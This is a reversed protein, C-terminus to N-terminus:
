EERLATVPDIRLARRAPLYSSVLATLGLLGAVAVYTTIDTAQVGFLMSTMLRTLGLAGVVGVAMGILVPLMGQRVIQGIVSASPAGLAVCIGIESTRRAVSYSQVGYIGALALALALGAVALLLMANFRRTAVSDSVIEDLTEISSVPVNPDMDALMPRLAGVIASPDGATHVGVDMRTWGAGYYPLYVALTPDSDLGRERMDGVVGIIEAPRAGQGEWLNAQRGIPNEGPWLLEALRESIIARWPEAILDQENFTRGSLLPLGITSFYDGTVLRWTAWPVDGDTGASETAVIGMGSSGSTLPRSSVAAVDRVQPLSRLRAFLDTLFNDMMSGEEYAPSLTVGFFLRNDTEFGREVSVIEDFSRILLGSGALLMLSLAVELGVLTNRMRKQRRNGAVGKDGARLSGVIDAHPAQFAPAMGSLIAAGLGVAITFGLVWLNLSVDAIGPIDGPDFAKFLRITATAVGLALVIGIGGLVLSEVLLQRTLRGRGAGLAARVATERHRSTANALLLNALNVCTILLLFGVAGFLVWLARRVETGAVWTDAAAMRIGTRGYSAMDPYQDHLGQAIAKLNSTAVTMSVGPELRGIATLIFNTRDADTNRVLPTFAQAADLWPRGRPLVGIVEYSQDDLSISAGVITSDASFRTTWLDHSLMVLRNERGPEDEGPQLTRGLIPEAGLLGFFGASVQGVTLREPFGLGTLNMDTWTIAGLDEFTQNQERYDRFNPRSLSSRDWGRDPHTEWVQVLRESEPFPLPRLLVTHVVSFLATNAGIGLALTVVAIATFAPSKRLGRIAYRVDTLLTRMLNDGKQTNSVRHPDPRSARSRISYLVQGWYWRRASTPGRTQVIHAFFEEDIDGAIFEGAEGRLLFRLLSRALLPRPDRAQQV